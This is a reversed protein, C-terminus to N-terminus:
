LWWWGLRCTRRGCGCIFCLLLIVNLLPLCQPKKVECYCIQVVPLSANKSILPLIHTHQCLFPFPLCYVLVCHIAVVVLQNIYNELFAVVNLLLCSSVTKFHVVLMADGVLAFRFVVPWWTRTWKFLDLLRWSVKVNFNLLYIFLVLDAM